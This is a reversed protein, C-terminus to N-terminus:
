FSSQVRSCRSLDTFIQFSIQVRARIFLSLLTDIFIIGCSFSVDYSKRRYIGDSNSRYLVHWGCAVAIFRLIIRRRLSRYAHLRYMAISQELFQLSLCCSELHIVFRSVIYYKLFLALLNDAIISYM